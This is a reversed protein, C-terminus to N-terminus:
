KINKSAVVSPNYYEGGKSGVSSTKRPEELKLFKVLYEPNEAKFGREILLDYAERFNNALLQRLITGVVGLKSGKAFDFDLLIKKMFDDFEGKDIKDKLLETISKNRIADGWEEFASSKAYSNYSEFTIQLFKGKKM